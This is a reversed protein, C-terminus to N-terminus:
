FRYARLQHVIADVGLPVDQIITGEVTPKRMEYWHAALLKVGARALRPLKGFYHTGSGASTIDIASGGSTASLKFTDGTASASVVYYDTDASLGTPLTGTTQAQVREGDRFVRGGSTVVDTGAVVTFPVLHGATFRITVADPRDAVTPWSQGSKLEVWGPTEWTVARYVTTALTQRDEDADLYSVSVAQLPPYPLEYFDWSFDPLHLDYVATMLAKDTADQFWETAAEVQDEILDNDLTLDADVRLHNRMEALTVAPILPEGVLVPTPM